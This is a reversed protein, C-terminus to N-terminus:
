GADGGRRCRRLPVQRPLPLLGQRNRLPGRHDPRRPCPRQGQLRGGSRPIRRCPRRRYRTRLVPLALHPLAPDHGAERSWKTRWGSCTPPCVRASRCPLSRRCRTPICNPSGRRCRRTPQWPRSACCRFKAPRNSRARGAIFRSSARCCISAPPSNNKSSRWRSATPPKKTPAIPSSSCPIWRCIRSSCAAAPWACPLPPAPFFVGSVLMMPTVFLTFYSMFFDYSPALANWILGLAAFSLGLLLVAPLVWLALLGQSLGLAAVVALIAAGSLSAKSAAWVLEGAVVDALGLPTNLIADWTKQVQMRSFASYLAEFTAANMTSACISGGALFALYSSGGVEPLLAGLGYGLGFLYILPDALNGLISPLALKRWVLFNRQWIPLWRPLWGPRRWLHPASRPLTQPASM